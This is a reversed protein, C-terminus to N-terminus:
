YFAFVDGVNTETKLGLFVQFGFLLHGAVSIVDRAICNHETRVRENALLALEAGGFVKKRKENLAEAKAALESSQELLRKRIVDYSGGEMTAAGGNGNGDKPAPPAGGGPPPGGGVNVSGKPTEVQQTM